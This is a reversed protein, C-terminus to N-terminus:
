PSTLDINNVGTALVIIHKLQPLQSLIKDDLVVKNVLAVQAGELRELVEDAQTHQYSRLSDVASNLRSFDLDEPGLTAADLIVAYM